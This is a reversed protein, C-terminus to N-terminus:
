EKLLQHFRNLVQGDLMLYRANFQEREAVNAEPHQWATAIAPALEAQTKVWIVGPAGQWVKGSPTDHFDFTIVPKDLAQATMLTTSWQCLVVRSQQILTAADMEKEIIVQPDNDPNIFSFSLDIDRPHIKFVITAEPVVDRVTRVVHILDDQMVNLSVDGQRIGKKQRMSLAPSFIVIHKPNADQEARLKTWIDHEPHGLLKIKRSDVGHQVLLNQWHQGWVCVIDSNGGGFIWPNTRPYARLRLQVFTLRPKLWWVFTGKHRRLVRPLFIQLVPELTKRIFSKGTPTLARIAVLAAESYTAAWQVTITKIGALEAARILEMTLLTRDDLLVLQTVHGQQLWERYQEIRARRQAFLSGGVDSLEASMVRFPLGAATCLKEMRGHDDSELWITVTCGELSQALPLVTSRLAQIYHAVFTINM